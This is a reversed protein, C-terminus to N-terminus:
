RADHDEGTNGTDCANGSQEGPPASLACLAEIIDRWASAKLTALAASLAAIKADAERYLTSGLPYADRHAEAVWICSQVAAVQEVLTPTDTM